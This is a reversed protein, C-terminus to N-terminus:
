YPNKYYCRVIVLFFFPLCISCLRAFPFCWALFRVFFRFLSASPLSVITHIVVRGGHVFVPVNCCLVCLVSKEWYPLAKGSSPIGSYHPSGRYRTLLPDWYIQTPVEQCIVGM